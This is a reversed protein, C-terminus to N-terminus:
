TFARDLVDPLGDTSGHAVWAVYGDPRVLAALSPAPHWWFPLQCTWVDTYRDKVAPCKAAM